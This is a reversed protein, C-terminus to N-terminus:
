GEGGRARVVRLPIPASAARPAPEQLRDRLDQRARALRSMVTGIPIGLVEAVEAYRLGDVCVLMLVTRQEAPLAAMTQRVAKLTLTGQVVQEGDDGIVNAAADMDDHRRVRRSRTEDTWCNRMIGYIWADLRSQERLQDSRRLVRECATQVLDDADTASGTLALGFRRLRPLLAALNARLDIELALGGTLV